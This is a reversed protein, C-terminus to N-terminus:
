NKTLGTGEKEGVVEMEDRVSRINIDEDNCGKCAFFANQGCLSPTPFNIYYKNLISKLGYDKSGSLGMQKFSDSM